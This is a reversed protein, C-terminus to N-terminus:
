RKTSKTAHVPAKVPPVMVMKGKVEHVDPPPAVQVPVAMGGQVVHMDDSVATTGVVEPKPDGRMAAYAALGGALAAAVGAAAIRRRRQARRGVTCDALLISGDARQYYRVCLRGVRAQILAEAEDRTMASLNFVQQQCRACARVRDDGSMDAWSESCPSAVRIHDLVPLRARERAEEVLRQAEDREKAIEAAQAALAAHRAALADVDHRYSM